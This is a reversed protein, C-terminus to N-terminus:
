ASAKKPQETSDEIASGKATATATGAKAKQGGFDPHVIEGGKTLLTAAIIEDDEPVVIAKDTVLLNVFQYLNRAYLRSADYALQSPFNTTGVITVGKHTIVEDAKTLECNGGRAAAMDIIVAGNPMDEVMAKTILTPAPKGPILATTIAINQTKLVEHVKDMQRKQDAKTLEKAYGGEGEGSLDEVEVFKAGLSEVQEKVAPRVDFASVVAGLRKTTAIAQLGAVGAGLVLAKAPAVTGAATMMMPMAKKLRNAAEIAAAYGALNAQSSLVDMAQARTIRPILELAYTRVGAKAAASLMAANDYPSMHCIVHCGKPFTSLEATTPPSVKIVVDADLVTTKSEKAIKAGAAEYDADPFGAADGAGTEITVEFGLDTYKKLVDPTAAVRCELADTEKLIVLKM